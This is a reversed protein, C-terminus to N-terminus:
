YCNKCKLQTSTLLMTPLGTYRCNKGTYAQQGAVYIYLQQGKKVYSHPASYLNGVHAKQSAMCAEEIAGFTKYGM